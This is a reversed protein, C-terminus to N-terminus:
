ALRESACHDRAGSCRLQSRKTRSSRSASEIALSRSVACTSPLRASWSRVRVGVGRPRVLSAASIRVVSHSWRRPAKVRWRAAIVHWTRLSASAFTLDSSYSAM